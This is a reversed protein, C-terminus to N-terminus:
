MQVKNPKDLWGITFTRLKEKRLPFKECCFQPHMHYTKKIISCGRRYWRCVLTPCSQSIQYLYGNAVFFWYRSQLGLAFYMAATKRCERENIKKKIRKSIKSFSILIWFSSHLIGFSSLKRSNNGHNVHQVELFLQDSNFVSSYCYKLNCNYVLYPLPATSFSRILELMGNELHVLISTIVKGPPM